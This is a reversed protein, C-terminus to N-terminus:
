AKLAALGIRTGRANHGSNWDNSTGVNPLKTYTLDMIESESQIAWQEPFAIV